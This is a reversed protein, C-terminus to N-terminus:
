PRPEGGSAPVHPLRNRFTSAAVQSRMRDVDAPDVRLLRPGFKFARLEGRAIWRRVTSTSVNVEDAVERLSLMPRADAASSRLQKKPTAM